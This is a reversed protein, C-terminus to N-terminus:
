AWGLALWLTGNAGLMGVLRRLRRCCGSHGGVLLVLSNPLCDWLSPAKAAVPDQRPHFSQLCYCCCSGPGWSACVQQSEVCCACPSCPLGPAWDASWRAGSIAFGAWARGRGHDCASCATTRCRHGTAGGAGAHLPVAKQFHHPPAGKAIDVAPSRSPRRTPPALSQGQM